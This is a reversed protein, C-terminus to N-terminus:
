IFEYNQFKEICNFKKYQEYLHYFCIEAKYMPSDKEYLPKQLQLLM